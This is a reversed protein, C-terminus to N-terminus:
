GKAATTYNCTITITSLLSNGEAIKIDRFSDVTKEYLIHQLNQNGYFAFPAIQQISSSLLYKSGARASPYCLLVKKNKTFLVGGISCFAENDRDVEIYSLAKCGAFASNGIQQIESSLTISVISDCHDFAGDGIATVLEGTPSKRPIILDQETCSGIGLISCTGDGNSSYLLGSIDTPPVTTQIPKKTDEQAENGTNDPPSSLSLMFSFLLLLGAILLLWRLWKKQLFDRINQTTM